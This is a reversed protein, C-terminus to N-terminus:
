KISFDLKRVLEDDMYLAVKWMGPQHAAMEATSMAQARMAGGKAREEGKRQETNLDYTQRIKRFERDSPDTWVSEAVYHNRENAPIFCLSVAEHIAHDFAEKRSSGAALFVDKALYYAEGKPRTIPQYKGPNIVGCGSCILLVLILIPGKLNSKHNM